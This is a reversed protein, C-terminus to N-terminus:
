MVTIDSPSLIQIVCSAQANAFTGNVRLGALVRKAAHNRGRIEHLMLTKEILKSGGAAGGLIQRDWGM